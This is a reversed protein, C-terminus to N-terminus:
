RATSRRTSSAAGLYGVWLWRFHRRWIGIPSQWSDLGVVIATLGSNVAFSVVAM